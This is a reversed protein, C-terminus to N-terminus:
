AAAQLDTAFQGGVLNAIVRAARCSSPEDTLDFTHDFLTRQIPRYVHAHDTQAQNLAAGLDDISDIVQGAQWHAYNPDGRHDVHHTNLFICPRPTKLFEYIQSSVDGLYIDAANTYTM